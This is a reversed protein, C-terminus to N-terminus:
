QLQFALDQEVASGISDEHVVTTPSRRCDMWFEVRFERPEGPRTFPNVSLPFVYEGSVGIQTSQWLDPEGEKSLKAHLLTGVPAPTCDITIEGNFVIPLPPPADVEHPPRGPLVHMRGSRLASLAASPIESADIAAVEGPRVIANQLLWLAPMRMGQMRSNENVLVAGDAISNDAVQIRMYGYGNGPSENEVVRTPRRDLAPSFSSYQYLVLEQGISPPQSSFALHDYTAAPEILPTLLALGIDDDRGTVCAHGETGDWLRMDVVPATGLTQSTTLIEGMESIFVGTWVADDAGSLRM